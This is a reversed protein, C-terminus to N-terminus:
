HATSTTSSSEAWDLVKSAICGIRPDGILTEVAASLWGPAPRADNNIFAIYEGTAHAVGLNCGGAFGTNVDAEVVIAAPVASRIRAASDDGSANEVVILELREAPWDIGKFSTM